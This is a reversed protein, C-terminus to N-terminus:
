ASDEVHQYHFYYSVLLNPDEGFGLAVSCIGATLSVHTYHRYLQLDVLTMYVHGRESLNTRQPVLWGAARM